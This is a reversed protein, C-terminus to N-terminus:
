TLDIPVQASTTSSWAHMRTMTPIPQGAMTKVINPDSCWRWHKKEAELLSKYLQAQKSLRCKCSQQGNAKAPPASIRKGGMRVSVKNFQTIRIVFFLYRECGFRKRRMRQLSVEAKRSPVVRQRPLRSLITKEPWACVFRDIETVILRHYQM